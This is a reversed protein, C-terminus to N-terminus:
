SLGFDAKATAIMEPTPNTGTAVIKRSTQDAGQQTYRVVFMETHPGWSGAPAFVDYTKPENARILAVKWPKGSAGTVAVVEGIPASGKGRSALLVLAAVGGLVVLPSM